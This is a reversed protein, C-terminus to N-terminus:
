TETASIRYDLICCLRHYNSKCACNCPRSVPKITLTKHRLNHPKCCNCNALVRINTELQKTTLTRDLFTYYDVDEEGTSWGWGWMSWKVELEQMFQNCALVKARNIIDEQLEVPLRPHSYSLIIFQLETALDSVQMILLSRM